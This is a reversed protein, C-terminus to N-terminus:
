SASVAGSSIVSSGASTIRAIIAAFRVPAPRSLPLPRASLSLLLPLVLSLRLPLPLSSSSASALSEIPDPESDPCLPSSPSFSSLTSSVSPGDDFTVACAPVSDSSSEVEAFTGRGVAEVDRILRAERTEPLDAGLGVGVEGNEPWLAGDDLVVKSDRPKDGGRIEASAVILM